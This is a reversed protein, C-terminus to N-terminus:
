KGACNRYYDDELLLFPQNQSHEFLLLVSFLKKSGIHLTHQSIVLVLDSAFRKVLKTAGLKCLFLLTQSIIAVAHSKRISEKLWHADQM